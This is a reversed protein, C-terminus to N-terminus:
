LANLSSRCLPLDDMKLLRKAKILAEILIDIEKESELYFPGIENDTSHIGISKKIINEMKPFVTLEIKLTTDM